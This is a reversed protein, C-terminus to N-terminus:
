ESPHTTYSISVPSGGCVPGDACAITALIMVSACLGTVSARGEVGSETAAANSIASSFSDASRNAVALANAAASVSLANVPRRWDAADAGDRFRHVSMAPGATMARAINKTPRAVAGRSGAVSDDIARNEIGM